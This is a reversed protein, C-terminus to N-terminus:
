TVNPAAERVADAEGAHRCCLVPVQGSEAAMRDVLVDRPDLEHLAKAVAGVGSGYLVVGRRGDGVGGNEIRGAAVAANVIRSGFIREALTRLRGLGLCLRVWL